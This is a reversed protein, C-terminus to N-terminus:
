QVIDPLREVADVARRERSFGLLPSTLVIMLIMLTDTRDELFFSLSAAFV